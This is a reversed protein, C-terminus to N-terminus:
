RAVITGFMGNQQAQSCSTHPTCAYEDHQGCLNQKSVQLEPNTDAKALGSQGILRAAASAM